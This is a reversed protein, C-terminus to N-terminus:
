LRGSRSNIDLHAAILIICDGDVCEPSVIARLIFLFM